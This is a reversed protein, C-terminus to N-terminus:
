IGEDAVHTGEESETGLISCSQPGGGCGGQWHAAGRHELVSDLSKAPQPNTRKNPFVELLLQRIRQPGTKLSPTPYGCSALHGVTVDWM